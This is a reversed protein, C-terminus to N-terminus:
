YECAILVESVCKTLKLTNVVSVSRYSPSYFTSIEDAVNPKHSKAHYQRINQGVAHASLYFLNGDM